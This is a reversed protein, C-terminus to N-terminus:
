EVHLVIDSNNFPEIWEWPTNMRIVRKCKNSRMNSRLIEEKPDNRAEIEELTEVKGSLYYMPSTKIVKSDLEKSTRERTTFQFGYPKANYRQTISKALKVAENVDWSSLPREDTEAVFTGPSYFIVFHKKM